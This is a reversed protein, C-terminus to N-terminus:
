TSAIFALLRLVTNDHHPLPERLLNDLMGPLIRTDALNAEDRKTEATQDGAGTKRM